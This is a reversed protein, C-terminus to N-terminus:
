EAVFPVLRVAGREPRQVHAYDLNPFLAGSTVLRGTCRTISAVHAPMRSWFQEMLFPM